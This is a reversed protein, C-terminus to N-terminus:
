RSCCIKLLQYTLRSSSLSAAAVTVAPTNKNANIMNSFTNQFLSLQGSYYVSSLFLKWVRSIIRPSFYQNCSINCNLRKHMRIRVFVASLIRGVAMSESHSNGLVILFAKLHPRLRSSDADMGGDRRFKRGHLNARPYRDDYLSIDGNKM